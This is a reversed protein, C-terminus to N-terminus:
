VKNIDKLTIPDGKPITRGAKKGIIKKTEPPRLSIAPRLFEIMNATIKTGIPIDTSAYAGRRMTFVTEKESPAPRKIGDGLAKELLRISDVMRKFGKPDLAFPHDTGKRKRDDTFHKEIVVAGLAVAGLPITLGSLPDDGGADTGTTHDSYGVLVKFKEGLAAMAKINADSAPSPYNSVCQMLVIQNNETKRITAVAQGVEALTATGCAILIPKGIKGVYTLFELNDIEGSGIKYAPTGIKELHDVAETDYPSSFFDIGIQQCYDSLEKLWERPFEATKYMDFVSTNFQKERSIQRGAFGVPSILKSALFNQIKYADAGTEKALKALQKARTLNGDFNSGVEAIIYTPHSQGIARNGIKFEKKSM